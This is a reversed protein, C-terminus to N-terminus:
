SSGPGVKELHKQLAVKYRRERTADARAADREAVVTAFLIRLQGIRAELENRDSIVDLLQTRLKVILCYPCNNNLFAHECTERRPM